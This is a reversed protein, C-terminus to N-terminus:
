SVVEVCTHQMDKRWVQNYEKVHNKVIRWIICTKIAYICIPFAHVDM